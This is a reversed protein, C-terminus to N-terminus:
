NPDFSWSVLRLLQVFFLCVFLACVVVFLLFGCKPVEVLKFLVFVCKPVLGFMDAVDLRKQVSQFGSTYPNFSKQVSKFGGFVFLSYHMIRNNTTNNTTSFFSFDDVFVHYQIIINNTDDFYGIFHRHFNM